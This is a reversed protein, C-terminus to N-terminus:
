GGGKEAKKEEGDKKETEGGEEEPPEEPAYKVLEEEWWSEWKVLARERLPNPDNARFGYRSGTLIELADISAGRVFGDSDRLGKNILTPVGPKYGIAGLIEIARQRTRPKADGTMDLVSKGAKYGQAILKAKARIQWKNDTRALNRIQVDIVDQEKQTLETTDEYPNEGDGAGEASKGKKKFPNHAEGGTVGSKRRIYDEGTKSDKEWKEVDSLYFVMTARGATRVKIKKDDKYFVKGEIVSGNKLTITDAGADGAYSACFVLCLISLLWRM